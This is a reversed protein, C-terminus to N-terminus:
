LKDYQADLSNDWIKNFSIQSAKAFDDVLKREEEGGAPAIVKVKTNPKLDAPEDLIIVKGDFHGNFTQM